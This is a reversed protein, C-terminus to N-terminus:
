PTSREVTQYGDADTTATADQITQYGDADTVADANTITQYGDPDTTVALNGSGTGPPAGEDVPSLLRITSATFTADTRTLRLQEGAALTHPYSVARWPGGALSVEVAVPPGQQGLLVAGALTGRDATVPLVVTGAGALLIPNPFYM